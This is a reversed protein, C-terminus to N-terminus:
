CQRTFVTEKRVLTLAHPAGIQRPQFADEELIRPHAINCRALALDREPNLRHEEWTMRRVGVGLRALNAAVM